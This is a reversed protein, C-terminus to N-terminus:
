VSRVTTSGWATRRTTGGSSLAALSGFRTLTRTADHVSQSLRNADDDALLLFCDIEEHLYADEWAEYDNWPSEQRSKMGHEFPTNDGKLDVPILNHLGLRRYGSASLGFMGVGDVPEVGDYKASLDTQRKASTVYKDLLSKLGQCVLKPDASFRIFLYTAHQRAFSKLINGQIDEPPCPLTMPKSAADSASTKTGAASTEGKAASSETKTTLM